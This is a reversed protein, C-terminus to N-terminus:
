HEIRVGDRGHPLPQRKRCWTGLHRFGVAKRGSEENDVKRSIERASRVNGHRGTRTLVRITAIVRSNPLHVQRHAGSMSVILVYVEAAPLPLVLRLGLLRSARTFRSRLHRWVGYRGAETTPRSHRYPRLHHPGISWCNAWGRPPFSAGNSHDFPTHGEAVSKSPPGPGPASRADTESYAIGCSRFEDTAGRHCRSNM